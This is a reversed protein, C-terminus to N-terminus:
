YLVICFNVIVDDLVLCKCYSIWILVLSVVVLAVSLVYCLSVDRRRTKGGSRWLMDKRVKM